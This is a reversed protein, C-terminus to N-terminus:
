ERWEKWPQSDIGYKDSIAESWGIVAAYGENKVNMAAQRFRMYQNQIIEEPVRARDEGAEIDTAVRYKCLSVNFSDETYILIPTVRYKEASKRLQKRTKGSINTADFIVIDTSPDELVKDLDYYAKKWVETDRSQDSVSGTMDRRYDDPCIVSYTIDRKSLSSTLRKRLTSKGSGSIGMLIILKQPKDINEILRVISDITM